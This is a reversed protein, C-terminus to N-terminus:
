RMKLTVGEQEWQEILRKLDTVTVHLQKSTDVLAEYLRPDNIIKAATGEGGDMKSTISQLSELIKASQEIRASLQKTVLDVNENTKDITQRAATMTEAAADTIRNLKGSASELDQGIRIATDTVSRINTVAATVDARMAEDGIVANMSDLLEGAKNVNDRIALITENLNGIFNSQNLDLALQEIAPPLLGSGGFIATIVQGDEMEGIAEGGDLSLKIAASAGLASIAEIRGTVNKPLPPTRDVLAEIIIDQQNDARYVRTVRGITVGKYLVGSGDALGEARDAIFKVPMRTPAFPSALRGGFQIIMWGLAILGFLMAIGVMFNKKNPSM